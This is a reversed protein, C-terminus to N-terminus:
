YVIVSEGKRDARAVQDAGVVHLPVVCIVVGGLHTAAGQVVLSKGSGTKQVLLLQNTTPCSLSAIAECQYPKAAKGWKELVM